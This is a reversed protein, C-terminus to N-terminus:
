DEKAPGDAHPALVGRLRKLARVYRKSAASTELGLLSAVESNSLHEYHRLALVERDLPDLSDLAEELLRKMERRAAAMSPSTHDGALAAAVAGSNSQMGAGGDLAVDRAADRMKFGLHHRHIELLKNGTIGRLWLYLPMKPNQVYEALHRAAELYAEQVIDSANVRRQMRRDIRLAVMRQLRPRYAEVLEQWGEGDGEAARRLRQLLAEDDGADHAKDPTDTM